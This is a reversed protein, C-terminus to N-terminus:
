KLKTIIIETRPNEKDVEVRCGDLSAVIKFNDDAIVGGKVMIDLTANILNSLDCRRNNEKYYICQINVPENIPELRKLDSNFQIQKICDKEYDKYRQSQTVFTRGTYKNFGVNMSNKKSAPNGYLIFSIM